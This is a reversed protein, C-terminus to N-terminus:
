NLRKKRKPRFYKARRTLIRARPQKRREIGQEEQKIRSPKLRPDTITSQKLRITMEGDENRAHFDILPKAMRELNKYGDFLFNFKQTLEKIQNDRLRLMSKTLPEIELSDMVIDMYLQRYFEDNEPSYNEDTAEGIIYNLHNCGIVQAKEKFFETLDCLELENGHRKQSQSGIEQINQKIGKPTIGKNPKKHTIFLLSEPTLNERDTLERKALYKKLHKVSEEGIFSPHKNAKEM